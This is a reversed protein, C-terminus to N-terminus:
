VEFIEDIRGRGMDVFSEESEVDSFPVPVGNSCLEDIMQEPVEVSMPDLPFHILSLFVYVIDVSQVQHLPSGGEKFLNM